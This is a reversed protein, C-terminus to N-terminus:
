AICGSGQDFDNRRIALTLHFATLAEVADNWPFGKQLPDSGYFGVPRRAPWLPVHIGRWLVYKWDPWYWCAVALLLKKFQFSIKYSAAVLKKAEDLSVDGAQESTLVFPQQLWYFKTEGDHHQQGVVIVSPPLSDQNAYFYNFHDPPVNKHFNSASNLVIATKFAWRAVWLRENPELEVIEKEGDMLPILLPKAEGELSSMWGNNCNSCVRGEVLNEVKHRRTSVVDGEGELSHHTPSIEEGRVELYDLLWQPLVHEDSWKESATRCFICTRIGM